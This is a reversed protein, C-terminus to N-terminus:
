RFKPSTVKGAVFSGQSIGMLVVLTPDVDPLRVENLQTTSSSLTLTYLTGFFVTLYIFIGIWTWVFMQLRTISSSGGELLISSWDNKTKLYAFRQATNGTALPAVGISAINVAGYKYSNLGSSAAPVIASIGLIKLINEPLIGTPPDFVWGLVRVLYVTLFAFVIVVSWMFVQLNELSPFEDRSKIAEYLSLSKARNILLIAVITLVATIIGSSILALWVNSEPIV